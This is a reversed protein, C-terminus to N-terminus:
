LSWMSDRLDAQTYAMSPLDSTGASRLQVCTAIPLSVMTMTGHSDLTDMLDHSIDGFM